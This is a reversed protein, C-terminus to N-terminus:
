SQKKSLFNIIILKTLIAYDTWNGCTNIETLTLHVAMPSGECVVSIPVITSSYPETGNPTM